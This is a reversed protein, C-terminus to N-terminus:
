DKDEQKIEEDQNEEQKKKGFIRDWNSAYSDYDASKRPAHGKGGRNQFSTIAAPDFDSM